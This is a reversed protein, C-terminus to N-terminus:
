NSKVNEIWKDADILEYSVEWSGDELHKLLGKSVYLAGSPHLTMLTKNKKDIETVLTRQQLPFDEDKVFQGSYKDQFYYEYLSGGNGGGDWMVAFDALGDFNYDNVEFSECSFKGFVYRDEYEYIIEQQEQTSNKTINISLTQPILQKINDRYQNVQVKFEFEKNEDSYLCFEKPPACTKHPINNLKDKNIFFQSERDNLRVEVIGMEKNEWRLIYYSTNNDNLYFYTNNGLVKSNYIISKDEEGLSYNKIITEEIEITEVGETCYYYKGDEKVIEIFVTYLYDNDIIIKSEVVDNQVYPEIDGHEEKKQTNCGTIFLLSVLCFLKM